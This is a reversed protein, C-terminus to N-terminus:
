KLWRRLANRCQVALAQTTGAAEPQEAQTFHAHARLLLLEAHQVCESAARGAMVRKLAAFKM